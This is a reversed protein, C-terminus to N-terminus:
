RSLRAVLEEGAYPKKVYDDAGARLGEVVDRTQSQVTLLLIPLAATARNSRLYQCIEVGSLGPMHWDLVVVDPAVGSALRELMTSGDRFEEVEFESLARRAFGAELPSDDVIWVKSRAADVDGHYTTNDPL